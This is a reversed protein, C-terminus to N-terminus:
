GRSPHRITRMTVGLGVSFHTITFGGTIEMEDVSGVVVQGRAMVSAQDPDIKIESCMCVSTFTLYLDDRATM